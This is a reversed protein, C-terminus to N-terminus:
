QCTMWLIDYIVQWNWDQLYFHSEKNTYRTQIKHKIIILIVKNGVEDRGEFLYINETYHVSNSNGEILISLHRLDINGWAKFEVQNNSKKQQKEGMSLFGFTFFM